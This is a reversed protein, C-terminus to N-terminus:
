GADSHAGEGGRDSCAGGSQLCRERFDTRTFGPSIVTVRLDPGAEQRLGESVVRVATKTAAYVSQNPVIRHAATSAVHVFQGFGQARFVPLVAAIGYLFVKIHPPAAHMGTLYQRVIAKNEDIGM